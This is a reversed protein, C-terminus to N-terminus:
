CMLVIPDLNLFPFPDRFGCFFVCTSSLVSAERWRWRWRWRKGEAAAASSHMLRLLLLSSRDTKEEEVEKKKPRTRRGHSRLIAERGPRENEEEEEEEAQEPEQGARAGGNRLARVDVVEVDKKRGSCSM